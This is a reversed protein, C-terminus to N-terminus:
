RYFYGYLNNFNIPPSSNLNNKFFDLSPEVNCFFARPYMSRLILIAAVIFRTTAVALCAASM